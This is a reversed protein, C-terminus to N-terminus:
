RGIWLGGIYVNVGMYLTYICIYMSWMIYTWLPYQVKTEKAGCSHKPWWVVGDSQLIIHYCISKVHIKSSWHFKKDIHIIVNSSWLYTLLYRVLYIPLYVHRGVYTKLHEYRNIYIIPLYTPLHTNLLYIRLYFM